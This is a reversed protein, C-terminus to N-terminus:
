NQKEIINIKDVYDKRLPFGKWEDDLFLKRLDPHNNFEIGFFEFAEREQLEAAKWISSVSDIKPNDRGEGFCTLTVKHKLTTSQLHYVVGLKNEIDVGTLSYLYDFQTETSDKLAQAIKFISENPVTVFLYQPTEKFDVGDAIKSIFEQLQTNNM